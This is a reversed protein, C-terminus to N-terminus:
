GGEIGRGIKLAQKYRENAKEPQYTVVTVIVSGAVMKQASNPPPQVEPSGPPIISGGSMFVAMAVLKSDGSTANDAAKKAAWRTADGPAQAWRESAELAEDKQDKREPARLERMCRNAWKIGANAPLQWALFKIADQYLEQKELADLYTAPTSDDAALAQAAPSLGATESSEKVTM